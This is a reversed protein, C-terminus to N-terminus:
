SSVQKSKDDTATNVIEQQQKSEAVSAALKQRREIEAQLRKNVNEIEEGEQMLQSTLEAGKKEGKAIRKSLMKATNAMTNYIEVTDNARKKSENEAVVNEIMINLVREVEAETEQAQLIEYDAEARAMAEQHIYHVCEDQIHQLNREIQLIDKAKEEEHQLDSVLSTVESLVRECEIKAEFDNCNSNIKLEGGLQSVVNHMDAPSKIKCAKRIAEAIRNIDNRRKRSIGSM